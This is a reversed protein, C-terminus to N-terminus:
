VVGQIRRHSGSGVHSYYLEDTINTLLLLANPWTSDLGPVGSMRKLNMRDIRLWGLVRRAAATSPPIKPPMQEFTRQRIENGPLQAPAAATKRWSRDSAQLM